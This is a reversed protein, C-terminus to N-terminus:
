VEATLVAVRATASAVDGAAGSGLRRARRVPPHPGSRTPTASIAMTPQVTADRAANPM